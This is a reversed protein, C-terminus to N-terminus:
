VPPERTDRTRIPRGPRDSKPVCSRWTRHSASDSALLPSMQKYDMLAERLKPVTGGLIDPTWDLLSPEALLDGLQVDLADALSKIVSLWDLEIRGNEVKSLWDATRGVLGALVEQPVGHRRRYWAVREGISLTETM